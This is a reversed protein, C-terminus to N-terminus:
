PIQLSYTVWRQSLGDLSGIPRALRWSEGKPGKELFLEFPSDLNSLDNQFQWDFHGNLRLLSNEKEGFSVFSSNEVKVNKIGVKRPSESEISSSILQQTLELQLGLAERLVESSPSPFSKCSALQM